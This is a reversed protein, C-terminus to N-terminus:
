LNSHNIVKISYKYTIQGRYESNTGLYNALVNINVAYNQKIDQTTFNNIATRM